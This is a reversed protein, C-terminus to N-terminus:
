LFRVGLYILVGGWVLQVLVVLAALLHGHLRDKTLDGRTRFVVREEGVLPCV